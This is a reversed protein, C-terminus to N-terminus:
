YIYAFERSNLVAWLLDEYVARANGGAAALLARV